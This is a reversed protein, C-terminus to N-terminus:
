HNRPLQSLRRGQCNRPAQSRLGPQQRIPGQQKAPYRTRRLTTMQTILIPNWTPILTSMRFEIAVVQLFELRMYALMGSSNSVRKACQVLDDDDFAGFAAQLANPSEMRDESLTPGTDVPAKLSPARATARPIQTLQTVTPIDNAPLISPDSSHAVSEVFDDTSQDADYFIEVLPLINPRQLLFYYLLTFVMSATITDIM